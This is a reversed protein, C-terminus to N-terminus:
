LHTINSYIIESISIMISIIYIIAIIVFFGTVKLSYTNQNFINYHKDGAETNDM